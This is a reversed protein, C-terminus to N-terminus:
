FGLDAAGQALQPQLPPGHPIGVLQVGELRRKAERSSAAVVGLDELEQQLVARVHIHRILTTLCSQGNKTLRRM